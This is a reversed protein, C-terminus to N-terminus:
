GKGTSDDSKGAALAALNPSSGKRLPLGTAGPARSTPPFTSPASPLPPPPTSNSRRREAQELSPNLIRDVEASLSTANVQRLTGSLRRTAPAPTDDDRAPDGARRLHVVVRARDAFLESTIRLSDAVSERAFREAARIAGAAWHRLVKTARPQGAVGLGLSLGSESRELDFTIRVDEFPHELYSRLRAVTGALDGVRVAGGGQVLSKAILDESVRELVRGSGDGLTSELALLVEEAEDLPMTDLPASARLRELSLHARLRPPVRSAVVEVSGVGFEREISELVNRLFWSRLKGAL